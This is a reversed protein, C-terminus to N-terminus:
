PVGGQVAVLGVQLGFDAPGLVPELIIQALAAEKPEALGHFHGRLRGLGGLGFAVALETRWAMESPM